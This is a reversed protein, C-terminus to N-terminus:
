KFSIGNDVDAGNISFKGRNGYMDYVTVDPNFYVRWKDIPGNPIHWGNGSTTAHVWTFCLYREPYDRDYVKAFDWWKNGDPFNVIEGGFGGNGAYASSHPENYWVYSGYFNDHGPTIDCAFFGDYGPHADGNWYGSVDFHVFYNDTSKLSLYYNWAHTTVYKTNSGYKTSIQQSSSELNVDTTTYTLAPLPNLTVSGEFTGSGKTTTFIKETGTEVWGAISKMSVGPWCTVYFTFQQTGDGALQPHETNERGRPSPVHHFYPNEDWAYCWDTGGRWNLKTGDVYDVLRIHDPWSIPDTYLKGNEDTPKVSVTVAVQNRGNAYINAASGGTELIVSLKSVGTWKTM